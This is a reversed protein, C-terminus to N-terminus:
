LLGSLPQHLLVSEFALRLTIITYEKLFEMFDPMFSMNKGM